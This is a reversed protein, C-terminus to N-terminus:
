IIVLECLLFCVTNGLKYTQPKIKIKERSEIINFLCNFLIISIIEYVRKKEIYFIVVSLFLLRQKSTSNFVYTNGWFFIFFYQNSEKHVQRQSFSKKYILLLILSFNHCLLFTKMHRIEDKFTFSWKKFRISYVWLSSVPRM